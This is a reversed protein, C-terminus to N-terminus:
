GMELWQRRIAENAAIEEPTGSFMVKGRGIVHCRSSVRLAIALKQEVLIIAVGARRVNQLVEILSEVVLPALGETPEDVLLVDPRTLLSRSITLMQQEGGSLYGAKTNRREGLNPFLNYIDPISWIAKGSSTARLGVILNEDVTLNEFVQRDEPVYALGARVIQYPRLGALEAGDLKVSGASPRIMGAMAKLATSRGSGNRGLLAVIEARELGISFGDLVHSKGYHAHLDCVDFFM